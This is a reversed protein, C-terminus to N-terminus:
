CGIRATSVVIDDFYREQAIPSGGNWYNEFYVANIGYEPGITGVWNLDSRSAERWGDVWLEFVGNSVGADNLAAHAEICYWDGVHNEDFIPTAGARSGLWRFHEFDNYKVTRLNGAEDTGSVPDIVLRNHNPESGAWVHAVMAQAFSTPSAFSFARSLKHGGGGRWTPENRVYLRWYLERYATAGDDVPRMYEQPTKGVALHLFGASVQSGAFRVAMGFSGDRGVGGQRVFSGDSDDYEFYAALREEEFDDCWIWEPPSMACEGVPLPAGAATVCAIVVLVVM